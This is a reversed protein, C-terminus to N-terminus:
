WGGNGSWSGAAAQSAKAALKKREEAAAEPSLFTRTQYDNGSSKLKITELKITGTQGIASNWAPTVKGTAENPKEGLSMFFQAIKYQAKKILKLTEKMKRSGGQGDAVELDCIVTPYSHDDYQDPAHNGNTYGLYKFEYIGDPLPQFSNDVVEDTMSIVEYDTANSM